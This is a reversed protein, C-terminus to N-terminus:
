HDIILAIEVLEGGNASKYTYGSYMNYGKACVLSLVTSLKKGCFREKSEKDEDVEHHSAQVFVMDFFLVTAIIQGVLM